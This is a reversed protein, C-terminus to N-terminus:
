EDGTSAADFATRSTKSAGEPSAIDGAYLHYRAERESLSITNPSAETGPTMLQGKHWFAQRIEYSITAAM